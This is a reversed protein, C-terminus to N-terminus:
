QVKLDRNEEKLKRQKENIMVIEALFEDMKESNFNLSKEIEILQAQFERQLEKKFSTKFKNMVKNMTKEIKKELAEEEQDQEEEFESETEEVVKKM